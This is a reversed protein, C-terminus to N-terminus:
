HSRWSMPRGDDLKYWGAGELDFRGVGEAEFHIRTRRFELKLASGSIEFDGNLGIFTISGDHNIRRMRASVDIDADGGVDKVTLTGNYAVGEVKGRGAMTVHGVGRAELTHGERLEIIGPRQDTATDSEASAATPAIAGFLMAAGIVPLLLTKKWNKM